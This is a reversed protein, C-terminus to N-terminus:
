RVWIQNGSNYIKLFKNKSMNQTESLKSDFKEILRELKHKQTQYRSYIRNGDTWIYNPATIGNSQFGLQTYIKGSGYNNNSYSIISKPQHQKLFYNFLKQTGGSVVWNLKTAIRIIEWEHDKNFRPKGFSMSMVLEDEYFLGYTVKAGIFGQIHNEKFFPRTEKSFLEKLECQRGGIRNQTLNCKHRIISKVIDQKTNWETESIQILEIGQEKCKLWKNQHYNKGRVSDSHWYDGNMEIALNKNEVYFDLELPTIANRTNQIFNINNKELFAKMDTELYSPIKLPIYDIQYKKIYGSITLPNVDLEKSIEIISKGEIFKEFKNKDFLIEKTADSFSIQSSYTISYRELLKQKIKRQIESSQLPYEVGYRELNTQKTKERIEPSQQPNEAGYKELMTKKIREKIEKAQIAHEVGYQKLNKQKIKQKIEESQFGNEVGYRDLMTEKQKQKIDDSQFANEVGYKELNTQKRKSQIEKLEITSKEKMTKQIKDKSEQLYMPNEVGYRDLMTEKQKQKIATNESPSKTGYKKLNTQEIKERIRKDNASCKISCYNSYSRSNWTVQNQCNDSLCKPIDNIKKMLHWVIQRPKSIEKPLHSYDLHEIDKQWIRKKMFLHKM